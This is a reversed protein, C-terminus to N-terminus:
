HGPGDARHLWEGTRTLIQDMRSMIDDIVARDAILPPSLTLMTAGRDDPRILLKSERVFGNLVGGQLAARDADSLETGQARSTMLEVAYFYGMGRWEKVHDHREALQTLGAQFYDENALVNENVGEDRMAEMNAVAVACAVPHGGFTSGHNYTGLESDWTEEVLRRRVAFGGLPQYASTVGKAFTIMDPDAGLRESAFWHGMRGFACIVEDACLLIGYEDCIRRLEQWYGNPPVVAGRGNQIPEAIIMSITEPGEDIITQELETICPQEGVPTGPAGAGDLTNPVHRVGDWLMPLFQKRFKPIGTIALAGLTTGHYAWNRAIVKYRSEDGRSVHYNRAFKTASEVAESGSSVFFVDDLDNPTREAIMAAAQITPPSAFGWNPYFALQEMQKMAAAALDSRGHGINTCFLGALGDLYRNGEVDEVYCGEGASMIPIDDSMWAAGKTYHPLLHSQALERETSM